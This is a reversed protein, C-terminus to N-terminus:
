TTHALVVLIVALCHSLEATAVPDSSGKIKEKIGTAFKDLIPFIVIKVCQPGLLSLARIAGSFLSGESIIM